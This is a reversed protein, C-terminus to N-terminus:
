FRRAEIRKSSNSRFWGRTVPFLPLNFSGIAKRLRFDRLDLKENIYITGIPHNIEFSLAIKKPPTDAIGAIGDMFFSM